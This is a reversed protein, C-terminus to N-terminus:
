IGFWSPGLPQLWGTPFAHHTLTPHGAYFVALSLRRANEETEVNGWQILEDMEMVKAIMKLPYDGFSYGWSKVQHEARSRGDLHGNPLMKGFLIEEFIGLEM